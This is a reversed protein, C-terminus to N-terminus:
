SKSENKKDRVWQGCACKKKKGDKEIENKCSPPYSESEVIEGCCVCRYTKIKNM